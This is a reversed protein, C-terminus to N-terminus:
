VRVERHEDCKIGSGGVSLNTASSKCADCKLQKSHWSCLDNSNTSLVRNTCGGYPCKHDTATMTPKPMEADHWFYRKPDGRKGEGTTKIDGQAHEMSHKVHELVDPKSMKIGDAIEDATKGPNRRIFTEVRKHALGWADKKAQKRADDYKSGLSIIGTAGDRNIITEDLEGLGDVRFTQETLMTYIKERRHHRFYLQEALSGGIGTSGLIDDGVNESSSAKRGHLSVLLAGSYGATKLSDQVQALADLMANYENVSKTTHVFHFLLDIVILIPKFESVQEALWKCRTDLSTEKPMQKETLIRLSPADEETIGLKRLEAAVRKLPDKRDLHLYLVRGQIVERDLFKRGLVVSAIINRIATSKGAKPKGVAGACDDKTILGYILWEDEYNELEFWNTGTM